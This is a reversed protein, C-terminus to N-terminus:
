LKKNSSIIEIIVDKRVKFLFVYYSMTLMVGITLKMFVSMATANVIFFSLGVFIFIPILHVSFVKDMYQKLPINLHLNTKKIVITVLLLATILLGLSAGPLLYFKTLFPLLISYAVLALISFYGILRSNGVGIIVQNPITSFSGVM